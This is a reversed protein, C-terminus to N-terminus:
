SAEDAPAIRISFAGSTPDGEVAVKFGGAPPPFQPIDPPQNPAPGQQCDPFGQGELFGGIAVLQEPTAQSLQQLLRTPLSERMYSLADRRGRGPYLLGSSLCALRATRRQPEHPALLM